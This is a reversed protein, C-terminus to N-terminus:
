KRDAFSSEKSQEFEDLCLGLRNKLVNCTLTIAEENNIMRGNKGDDVTVQGYEM